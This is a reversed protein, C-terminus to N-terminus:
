ETPQEGKKGAIKGAKFGTAAAGKAFAGKKGAAGVAGGAAGAATVSGFKFAKDHGFVAVKGYLKSHGSAYVKKFAGKKAFKAGVAGAASSSFM